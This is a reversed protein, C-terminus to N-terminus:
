NSNEPRYRTSTEPLKPHVRRGQLHFSCIRGIFWRLTCYCDLARWNIASYTFIPTTLMYIPGVGINGSKLYSGSHLTLDLRSRLYEQEPINFIKHVFHLIIVSRSKRDVRWGISLTAVRMQCTSWQYITSWHVIYSITFIQIFGENSSPKQVKDM